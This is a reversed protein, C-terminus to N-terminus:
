AAGGNQADLRRQVYAADEYPTGDYRVVLLSYYMKPRHPISRRTNEASTVPELHAINVCHKHRCGRKHVHDVTMGEPVPGNDLEWAVRHALQSKGNVAICGYGRSNLCGAWLHCGDCGCGPDACPTLRAALRERVTGRM